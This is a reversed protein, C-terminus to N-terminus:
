IPWLLRGYYVALPYLSRRVLGRGAREEFRACGLTPSQLFSWVDLRWCFLRHSAPLYASEDLQLAMSRAAMFCNEWVCYCVTGDYLASGFCYSCTRSAYLRPNFGAPAGERRAAEIALDEISPKMDALFPLRAM